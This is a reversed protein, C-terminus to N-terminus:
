SMRWYGFIEASEYEVIDAGFFQKMRHLFSESYLPTGGHLDIAAYNFVNCTGQFDYIYSKRSVEWSTAGCICCDVIRNRKSQVPDLTVVRLPYLARLSTIERIVPSKHSKSVLIRAPMELFPDGGERFLEYMADSVIPYGGFRPLLMDAFQFNPDFVKVTYGHSLDPFDLKLYRNCGECRVENRRWNPECYVPSTKLRSQSYVNMKRSAKSIAGM